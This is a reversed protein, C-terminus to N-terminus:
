GTGFATPTVADANAVRRLRDSRGFGSHGRPLARSGPGFKRIARREFPRVGDYALDGIDGPVRGADLIRHFEGAKAPCCEGICGIGADDECRELRKGFAQFRAVTGVFDDSREVLIKSTDVLREDDRDRWRGDPTNAVGTAEFHLDHVLVVGVHRTHEVDRPPHHDRGVLRWTQGSHKRGERLRSGLEIEVDVTVLGLVEVHRDRVDEVRQRRVEANGVHVVEVGEPADVLHTSLGVLLEAHFLVVHQIQLHPGGGACQNRKPRERVDAVGAARGKDLAVVHIHRYRQLAVGSRADRGTFGDLLHFCQGGLHQRRSSM